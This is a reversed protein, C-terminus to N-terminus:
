AEWPGVIVSGNHAPYHETVSLLYSAQQIRNNLGSKKLYSSIPATPPVIDIKEIPSTPGPRKHPIYIPQDQQIIEIYEVQLITYCKHFHQVSSRTEKCILYLIYRSM